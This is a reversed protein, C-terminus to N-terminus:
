PRLAGPWDSHMGCPGMPDGFANAFTIPGGNGNGGGFQVTGKKSNGGRFQVGHKTHILITQANGGGFQVRGNELQLQVQGNCKCIYNHTEFANPFTIQLQGAAREALMSGYPVPGRHAWIPGYPGLTGLVPGRLRIPDRAV